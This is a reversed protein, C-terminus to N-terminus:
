NDKQLHVVVEKIKLDENDFYKFDQHMKTIGLPLKDWREVKENIIKFGANLFIERMESYRIRNTYFGSSSM